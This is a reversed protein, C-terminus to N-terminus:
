EACYVEITKASVFPILSFAFNSPTYITKVKAVPDSGCADSAGISHEQGIGGFFYVKSYSETPSAPADASDNIVFTQPACGLLFFFACVSAIRLSFNFQKM